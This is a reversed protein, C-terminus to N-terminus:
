KLIKRKVEELVASWFAEALSVAETLDALSAQYGNYNINHRVTRLWDLAQLPRSAVIQLSILARIRDEHNGVKGDMVLLAQGLQHFCEYIRSVITSAGEASKKLSLLYHMEKESALVLSRAKPLDPAKM